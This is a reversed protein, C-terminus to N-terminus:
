VKALLAYCAVRHKAKGTDSTTWHTKINHGRDRLEQIRAAPHLIDLEERAQLTTITATQLWALLRACQQNLDTSYNKKTMPNDGFGPAAAGAVSYFVRAFQHFPKGLVGAKKFNFNPTEQTQQKSRGTKHWRSIFVELRNLWLM